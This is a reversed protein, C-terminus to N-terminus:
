NMVIGEKDRRVAAGHSLSLLDPNSGVGDRKPSKIAMSFRICSNEEFLVLKERM